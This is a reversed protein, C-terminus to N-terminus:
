CTGAPRTTRWCCSRDSPMPGRRTAPSTSSAAPVNFTRSWLLSGDARIAATTIDTDSSPGATGTVYSVGAADVVV